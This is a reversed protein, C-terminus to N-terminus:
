LISVDGGLVAGLSNAQGILAMSEKVVQHAMFMAYGPHSVRLDAYSLVNLDMGVKARIPNLNPDYAEETISLASLKVPLIRTKGWIFICFPSKVPLIEITGINMMIANAIVTASQPYLLTELAALRPHLGTEAVISDATELDDAADLVTEVKYTESPPGSLRASQTGGEGEAARMEVSRSMSEPNFQFPIVVPLPVPPRFAVIAGKLLKPSRSYGTM